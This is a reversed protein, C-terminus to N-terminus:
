ELNEGNTAIVKQYWDFSKKKKRKLTGHGEDDMDVYIMGYRKKMEGTGASVLDICGWVTYGLLDVGDEDVAKKMETIHSRLYDIRDDDLITGDEQIEDQMGLGNEVIWLPKQYREYLENLVYRLGVPDIPWGWDSHKLYPNPQGMQGGTDSQQIMGAKFVTTRYYSFSLFDSPYAKLIEDDGAEKQIVVGLKKFMSASYSPYYGRMMVDSFFLARRRFEVTGMVDEPHCTAPYLGSLALMCGIKADKIIDHCLQNALANALLLHHMAQYRTSADTAHCGLTLYGNLVNMENIPIWYKVLDKYRKFSTECYKLFCTITHRSAWGDHHDALYAPVEFHAITVLPEIGYKQCEKFVQEYFILGEENAPENALGGKPFIRTWSISMRYCKFGMQAFLQIDEKYHHYFDTAQHSPYYTGEIITGRAGEPLAENRNFFAYEGNKLLCSVQRPRTHSGNTLFDNTALGRGGSQYGGEYQTAATAGGWLFDKRFGM